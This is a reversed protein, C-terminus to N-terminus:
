SIIQVMTFNKYNEKFEAQKRDMEIKRLLLPDNPKIVYRNKVLVARLRQAEESLNDSTIRRAPM